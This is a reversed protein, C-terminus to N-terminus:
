CAVIMNSSFGVFQMQECQSFKNTYKSDKWRNLIM